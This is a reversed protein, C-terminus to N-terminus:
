HGGVIRITGVAVGERVKHYNIANHKKKLSSEPATTSKIVAENDGHINAQGTIPEGMMWLKYRLGETLALATRMVVKMIPM